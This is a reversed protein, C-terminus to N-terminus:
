PKINQIVSKFGNVVEAIITGLKYPYFFIMIFLTGSFIFIMINVLTYSQKMTIISKM